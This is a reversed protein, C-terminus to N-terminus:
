ITPNRTCCHRQNTAAAEHCSPFPRSISLVFSLHEGPRSHAPFPLFHSRFLPAHLFVEFKEQSFSPPESSLHARRRTSSHDVATTTEFRQEKKSNPRNSCARLCTRINRTGSLFKGCSIRINRLHFNEGFTRTTLRQRINRQTRIKGCNRSSEYM